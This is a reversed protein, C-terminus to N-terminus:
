LWSLSCLIVKHFFASCSMMGFSGQVLVLFALDYGFKEECGELMRGVEWEMELKDM